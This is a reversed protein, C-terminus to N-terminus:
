KVETIDQITSTVLNGRPSSYRPDTFEMRMGRGIFGVKIMSGGWTSGVIHTLSPTPCYKPHGSILYVAAGDVLKKEITYSTNHTRVSLVAGDKLKDIFVGGEIESQAIARNVEPTLNPHNM